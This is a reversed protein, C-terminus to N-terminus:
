KTHIVISGGDLLTTPDGTDSAGMNNDYVIAGTSVLWVKMRFTDPKKSGDSDGDIATLLFGYSGAGNITGVGKYQARTGAVVLWEYSQSKFNMGAAQFQFETNGDPKQQGKQYKAVFGFTAKGTLSPNAVYAGTPSMIWGGGTVFGANPDYRAILVCDMKDNTNGAADTGYVCVEFVDAV